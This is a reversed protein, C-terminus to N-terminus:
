GRRMEALAEPTDADALIGPDDVAIEVAESKLDTILSRGGKDGELAMLKAFHERGWLVPNGYQGKYTPAIISRHETPNFAAILRDITLPKVLPMDGLCILVADAEGAAEVGRRISSAIGQEYDPNRIFKSVPEHDAIADFKGAEHGLVLVIEDVASQRIQQLTAVIMSRGRFDALLKNSGMRSSTGAALVIATVKPAVPVAGKGERPSPRSPIEALLGGAGMDMIDSPAVPVDAILRELV